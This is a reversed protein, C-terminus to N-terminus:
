RTYEAWFWGRVDGSRFGTAQDKPYLQALRTKLAPDLDNSPGHCSLCMTATGIMELYGRKGDGLDVTMRGPVKDLRKGAAQSVYKAAWAPPANSPNRLRHSTRGVKIGEVQARKAIESADHNCAELAAAPGGAQMATQLRVKLGIKLAQLAVAVREPPPGLDVEGGGLIKKHKPAKVIVSRDSDVDTPKNCAGMVALGALLAVLPPAIGSLPHQTPASRHTSSLRRTTSLRTLTTMM